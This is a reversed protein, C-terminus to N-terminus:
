SIETQIRERTTPFFFTQEKKQTQTAREREKFVFRNKHRRVGEEEYELFILSKLLSTREKTRERKREERLTNRSSASSLLSFTTIIFEIKFERNVLHNTKKERADRSSAVGLRLTRQYIFALSFVHLLCLLSFSLIQLLLAFVFSLFSIKRVKQKKLFAEFKVGNRM